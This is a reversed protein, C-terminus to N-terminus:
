TYGILVLAEFSEPKQYATLTARNNALSEHHFYVGALHWLQKLHRRTNGSSPRAPTTTTPHPFFPPKRSSAPHECSPIIWDQLIRFHSSTWIAPVLGNDGEFSARGRRDRLPLSPSFLDTWFPLLLFV